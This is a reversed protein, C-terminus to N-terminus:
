HGAPAAFAVLTDGMAAGMAGHGAGAMVVFQRGSAPSRYSMPTANGSGPLPVEWLLRGTATEFARFTSDTSAGVFTLGGRTVLAGGLVPAGITFPLRSAIGFPGNERGTGLPRSWILRNSKLDVAHLRGWPPQSCPVVLPSLFPKTSLAYPTGEMANIAVLAALGERGKSMPAADSVQDRPILRTYNAIYSTAKVLIARDADISASGWDMGGLYGPFTISPTVGPPTLPGDYRAQRFRIRCWLHDFPTLGWMRSETLRGGALSPFDAPFPQTKALREEPAKGAQPVPREEIRGLPKGTVRDLLFVEGRKTPQALAQIRKGDKGALDYLVPQSGIDYDWLDHHVTQFLWRRRGTKIDLALVASSIEDDFPRRQAGFYDPTANGTAAYVLGLAPDFAMQAWVNPTARTYSEGPPPAGSREPAGADYAWVLAGTMADYARVVGSPQGWYQNDVMSGGVIIKGDFLNPASNFWYYGKLVEGLGELASVEGNVGFQACRQGNTADIEILRADVTTLVLRAACAGSAGPVQFYAVGRCARFPADLNVRPDFLWKERGTEADLAAVRNTDDCAYVTDGIKIPTVQLGDKQKQRFSYTWAVKLKGVNGPTIQDLTSFRSGGTVGGFHLWDDGSGNVSAVPVPRYGPSYTASTGFLVAVLPLAVGAAVAALGAARGYRTAWAPGGHMARRAPALLLGIGFGHFLGIRPLMAYIDLGAELLTWAMVLVFLGGYLWLAWRNGRWLLIGAAGLLVAEVLYFPSGGLAALQVGGWALGLAALVFLGALLRRFWASRATARGPDQGGSVVTM